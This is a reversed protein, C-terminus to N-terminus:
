AKGFRQVASTLQLATQRLNGATAAVSHISKTGEEIMEVTREVAATAGRTLENQTEMRSELNHMQRALQSLDGCMSKFNQSADLIQKRGDAAKAETDHVASSASEVASRLGSVFNQVESVSNSTMESLRRVENAVVAFGRGAEGARAAEISANLALLNTQGSIGEIGSVIHVISDAVSGMDLTQARTAEMAQMMQEMAASGDEMKVLAASAREVAGEMEAAMKQSEAAVEATVSHARSILESTQASNSRQEDSMASLHRSAEEMSTSLEGISGAAQATKEMASSISGLLLAV